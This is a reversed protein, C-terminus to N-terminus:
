VKDGGTPTLSGAVTHGGSTSGNEPLAALGAADFLETALRRADSVVDSERATQVVREKLVHRGQVWVDAIDETSASYAVQQYPDHVYALRCGAGSFRILDASKGPELSGTVDDIGLARAGEITAMALSDRATLAAPNLHDLKQLLPACKIVQLMDHSDNSGAGDTGLGVPIGATRL